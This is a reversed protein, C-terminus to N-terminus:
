LWPGIRVPLSDKKTAYHKFLSNDSGFYQRYFKERAISVPPSYVVRINKIYSSDKFTRAFTADLKPDIFVFRLTDHSTKLNFKGEFKSEKPQHTTWLTGREKDKKIKATDGTTYNVSKNGARYDDVTRYAFTLIYNGVQATTDIRIKLRAVSGRVMTDSKYITDTYTAVALSDFRMASGYRKEAVLAMADIQEVVRDLIANLPNSKRTSMQKVTHRFDSMTYGRRTLIALHFDVSDETELIKHVGKDRNKIAETLLAEKIIIEMEGEPISKVGGSCGVIMVAMIVIVYRM